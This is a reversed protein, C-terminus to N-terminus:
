GANKMRHWEELNKWAVFWVCRGSKDQAEIEKITNKHFLNHHHVCLPIASYDSGKQNEGRKGGMGITHLHHVISPKGCYSCGKKRLWALYDWDVAAKHKQLDDFDTM